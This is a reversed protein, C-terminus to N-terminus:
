DTPSPAGDLRRAGVSLQVRAGVSLQVPYPFSRVPLRFTAISSAPRPHRSSSTFPRERTTHPRLSPKTSHKERNEVRPVVGAAGLGLVAVRQNSAQFGDGATLQRVVRRSGLHYMLTTGIADRNGRTGVLRVVVHHGRQVTRNILLAAPRGVHSIAIDAAGDRNFDLRALGRGLYRGSFFDGLKDAALLHFRGSGDNWFVQPPMRFPQGKATNNEIHGNTVLLDRVM